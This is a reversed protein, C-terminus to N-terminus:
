KFDLRRNKVAFKNIVSSTSPVFEKHIHLLALGNLRDAVMTSRNYNKLRRMASFSRECECSTVPLTALIRLAVTLNDFQLSPIAKLTASINDPYSDQMEWYKHWLDLEADLALFNPMDDSYFSCFATFKDKWGLLGHKSVLFMMKSPIISLGQYSTVTSIDFRLKLESNLHDLLPINTTRKFYDSINEAPINSRNKQRGCTRPKTPTVCVKQALSVAKEYWMEHYADVANRTAMAASKLADIMHLGEFIDNSKSQLMRTVPLTIDFLSRTIVMTIIFDFSTILKYLSLAKSSTDINCQRQVFMEELTFVLPVYLEQFTDMGEVREIWRTRCVDKLKNKLSDPAYLKINKVFMDERVQSFNFFYSIEKINDLVNRITQVSCSACICLNLRHSHCHTYIAKRNIRLIHASLGNIRGAVAGAGDYGQGRCDQVNLVLDDSLAKLIISALASGSLGEKCHLFRIFDEKIDFNSDVYRLVLSLQEKNSTDSAEDAIITFFKNKKVESVINETIIDACCNIIENQSTKSIYSSNKNCKLLHNELTTDGGRVRYNLLDIFNGTSGTSFNGVEPHYKSDDRHGRLPICVRGCLIITDVIPTLFKRNDAVQKKYNSDIIVSIPQTQGLFNKVFASFTLSTQIHLGNKSTEHQKFFNKAAPWHRFPQSLLKQLKSTKNAVKHGFLICPLCFAGDLTPSYKLWLFTKLWEHRFSRGSKKPFIFSKDPVFVNTILNHVGKDNLGSVKSLFSAVDYQHEFNLVTAFSIDNLAKDNNNFDEASTSNNNSDKYDETLKNNFSAKNPFFNFQKDKIVPKVLSLKGTAQADPFFRTQRKVPPSLVKTDAASGSKRKHIQKFIIPVFHNPAFNERSPLLGEYCFLIHIAFASSPQRPEILQNFLMQAKKCGYDPYYSFINRNTVSSLALMALFSCYKRDVLNLIAVEKVLDEQKKDTNFASNCVSMNLIDEMSKFLSEPLALISSFLPHKCYFSANMMLEVSVLIRLDDVMVNKGFLCLAMSSYLCNGNVQSKLTIACGDKKAKVYAPLYYEAHCNRQIFGFTLQKQLVDTSPLVSNCKFKKNLEAYIQPLEDFNENEFVLEVRERLSKCAMNLVSLIKRM